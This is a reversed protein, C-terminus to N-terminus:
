STSLLGPVNGKGRGKRRRRFVVSVVWGRCVEAAAEVAAFVRVVGHRRVAAVREERSLMRKRLEELLAPARALAPKLEM